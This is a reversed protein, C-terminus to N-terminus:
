VASGGFLKIGVKPPAVKLKLPVLAAGLVGVAVAGVALGLMIKTTKDLRHIHEVVTTKGTDQSSTEKKESM